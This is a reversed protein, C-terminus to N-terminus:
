WVSLRAMGSTRGVHGCSALVLADADDPSRGLRKKLADKPELRIAGGVWRYSPALLEEELPEDIKVVGEDKLWERCNAYLETRRDAHQTPDTARAGFDNVFFEVDHKPGEGREELDYWADVPGAGLGGGDIAISAAAWTDALEVARKAVAVGDAGHLRGGHPVFSYPGVNVRFITDDEGYRAVDCGIRVVVEGENVRERVDDPDPTETELARMRAAEVNEYPIFGTASAKPFLGAVRTRFIVSDEGYKTRISEVYKTGSLGPVVDSDHVVNPTEWAAVRISRREGPVDPLKCEKAFRHDHGCTPNGIRVIRCENTSACGELALMAWEPIGAAEDLILLVGGPAHFGQLANADKAVMGLGYRQPGFRLSAATPALDGGIEVISKAYASRVEGWLVVEVQKEKTATTIVVGDPRTCLWWLVLRGLTFDKGVGHGTHVNTERNEAVSEAIEVQYDRCVKQEDPLESCVPCYPFPAGLFDEWWAIPALSYYALAEIAADDLVAANAPQEKGLGRSKRLRSGNGNSM